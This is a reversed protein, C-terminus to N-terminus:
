SSLDSQRIIDNTEKEWSLSDAIENLVTKMTCYEQIMKAEVGYDIKRFNRQLEVEHEAKLARRKWYAKTEANM